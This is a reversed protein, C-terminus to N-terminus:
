PVIEFVTGFSYLGGSDGYNSTMGYFAGSKDALLGAYPNGGSSEDFSYLVTEVGAASLMFITGKGYAGGSWTMGYLNGAGDAIVGGFPHAGDAKNFSYLVTEDGDKDIRFVAGKHFAGGGGATGYLNGAKDLILSGDPKRGDRKKEFVHLITESGDPALKFVVGCGGVRECGRGGGYLTTGYLNGQGDAVLGADPSWGDQGGAFSHLVSETGDAALKFITGCGVRGCLHTGGEATVGYLAGAGDAILDGRPYVGDNSLGFVHLVNESGDPSIKFVTGANYHGGSTTAGFINGSGDTLLGSDPDEGDEAGMFYHLITLKGDRKLKFVVGCGILPCGGKGGGGTAGYLNGAKDQILGAFPFAGDPGAFTHLVSFSSAHVLSTPIFAAGISLLVLRILRRSHFFSPMSVGLDSGRSQTRGGSGLGLM